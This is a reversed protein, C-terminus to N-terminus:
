WASYARSGDLFLLLCRCVAILCRDTLSRSLTLSSEGTFSRSKFSTLGTETGALLAVAQSLNGSLLLMDTTYIYIYIIQQVHTKTKSRWENSKSIGNHARYQTSQIGLFKSCIQKYAM